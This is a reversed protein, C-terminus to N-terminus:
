STMLSIRVIDLFPCCKYACICCPRQNHRKGKRGGIETATQSIVGMLQWGITNASNQTSIKWLAYHTFFHALTCKGNSCYGYDWTFLVSIMIMSNKHEQQASELVVRERLCVCVCRTVLASIIDTITGNLETLLEEIPGPIPLQQRLHEARRIQQRNQWITEALKECRHMHVCVCVRFYCFCVYRSGANTTHPHTIYVRMNQAFACAQWQKCLQRLTHTHTGHSYYTWDERPPGVTALWSNVDRGSFWSMTLFWRRSNGYCHWRRRTNRQWARHACLCTLEYLMVCVHCM